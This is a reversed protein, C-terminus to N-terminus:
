IEITHHSSCNWIKMCQLHHDKWFSLNSHDVVGQERCTLQLNEQLALKKAEFNRVTGDILTISVKVIFNNNRQINAYYLENLTNLYYNNAFFLIVVSNYKYFITYHWQIINTKNIFNFTKLPETSVFFRHIAISGHM